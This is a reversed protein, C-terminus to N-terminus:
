PTGGKRSCWAADPDSADSDALHCYHCCTHYFKDCKAKLCRPYNEDMEKLNTNYVASGFFERKM